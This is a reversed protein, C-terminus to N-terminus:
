TDVWSLSELYIANMSYGHVCADKYLSDARCVGMTERGEEGRTSEPARNTRGETRTTRREATTRSGQRMRTRKRGSRRGAMSM